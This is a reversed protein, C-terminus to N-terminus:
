RAARSRKRTTRRDQMQRREAPSWLLAETRDKDGGRAVWEKHWAPRLFEPWWLCLLITTGCVVMTVPFSVSSFGAVFKELFIILWIGAWFSATVGMIFPLYNRKHFPMWYNAAPPRPKNAWRRYRGTWACWAVVWLPVAPLFGIIVLVLLDEASPM